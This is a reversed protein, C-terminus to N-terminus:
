CCQFFSMDGAVPFESGAPIDEETMKSGDYALRKSVMGTKAFVIQCKLGLPATYTFDYKGNTSTVGSAVKQGNVLVTVAVGPEKKGLDVNTVVGSFRYTIDQAAATLVAFFALLIFLLKRM